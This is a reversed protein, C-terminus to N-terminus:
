KKRHTARRRVAPVELVSAFAPDRRLPELDTDQSALFRNEPNLEIAQRLHSLALDPEARLTHVISLMFQVHDNAPEEAELKRLLTLGEDHSGRNIAVTAAYVRDEFSRPAPEKQGSQRACINLYVRAREQLEKEDPYEDLISRLLEAARGFQRQQLTQFGREFAAVALDHSTPGTPQFPISRGRSRAGPAAGAPGKLASSTKPGGASKAGTPRAAPKAAKRAKAPKAAIKTAPRSTKPRAPKIPKRPAPRPSSKKPQKAM